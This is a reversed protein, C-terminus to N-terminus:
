RFPEIVVVDSNVLGRSLALQKGDRTWSFAFMDDSTFKTLQVLDGGSLRHEWINAARNRTLLFAIAKGDRTFRGGTLGYPADFTYLPSGGEAPAVM